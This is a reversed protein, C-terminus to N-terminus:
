VSKKRDAVKRHNKRESKKRRNSNHGNLPKDGAEALVMPFLNAAERLPNDALHAYRATTQAQTHGLLQGITPLSVGRSVLHSAYTHRLDHIRVGKLKADECVAAWPFKLDTLHEVMRGPFLYDGERPLSKLFDIAQDNLPVHEVRKQKTSHSPKTWVGRELDFQSWTALLVEGKRAGTVMILRISNVARQAEKRLFLRQKESVEALAARKDPYCDMATSLRKLEDESLWRERKAEQFKQVGTAPNKAIGWEGENDSIAFNFMKRLLALVRNARYPTAQLASHLNSVDRRSINAVRIRGLQPLVVRDLMAKDEHIPKPRKHVMAHRRLYENALDRLTRLRAESEIADRHMTERLIFPDVGNSISQRLEFAKDRAIEVSFEPFPGITYRRERGNYRYNLVFSKAGSATVRLGFGSIEGDYHIQNGSSPAMVRKAFTQTLKPM